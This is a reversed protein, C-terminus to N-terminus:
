PWWRPEVFHTGFHPVCCLCVFDQHTLLLRISAPLEGPTDIRFLFTNEGGSLSLLEIPGCHGGTMQPSCPLMAAHCCSALLYPHFVRSPIHISQGVVHLPTSFSRRAVPHVALADQMTSGFTRTTAGRSQHPHLGVFWGTVTQVDVCWRSAARGCGFLLGCVYWRVPKGTWVWSGINSSSVSPRYVVSRTPLPSDVNAVRM